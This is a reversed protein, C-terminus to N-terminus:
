LGTRLIKLAATGLGLQYFIQSWDRFIRTLGPSSVDEPVVITDGPHVETRGAMWGGVRSVTGDARIVVMNSKNAHPRLGGAGDVYSSVTWGTSWLLSGEQFVAGVITVTAPRHPIFVADEDELSIVPFVADADKYVGMTLPIRGMAPASRLRSVLTRVADMESAGISAEEQSVSNRARGALYRLYDQEVRDAAQRLREEESRRASSRTFVTGFVYAQRTLGGARVLAASLTEGPEVPYVGPANVEGEVKVLRLKKSQPQRFDSRAYIVVADGPQLEIDDAPEKSLAKLLSFTKISAALGISDVREIAAYDWEVDPFDRKLENDRSADGLKVLTDRENRQAWTALRVLNDRSGVLDSVRMGPRWAQRMPTAVYGRLTVANDIRPSVPLFMYLEGDKVVRKAFVASYTAQEIVRRGAELREIRVAPLNDSFGLGGSAKVLDGVTTTDTLHYVAARRVSGAVAAFAKGAPVYLVDGPLLQPDNSKDGDMLFRYADITAVAVGGRRLEIHRLDAYPLVGGSTMLGHLASSTSATLYVGPQKVFGMVYFQIQRLGGLTVTLEFNKFIKQVSARVQETVDKLSMGSVMIQGVKPIFIHGSRDIQGEFDIDIQGWARIVLEDGPGVRYDAPVTMPDVAANRASEAFLDAGFVPLPSGISQRIFDTFEYAFSPAASRQPAAAAPEGAFPTAGGLVNTTKNEVRTEITTSLKLPAPPATPRERLNLGVGEGSQKGFIRSPSFVRSEKSLDGGAATELLRNPTQSPLTETQAYSSQCALALLVWLGHWIVRWSGSARESPRNFLFHSM